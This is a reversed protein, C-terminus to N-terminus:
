RLELSSLYAALADTDLCELAAKQAGEAAEIGSLRFESADRGGYILEAGTGEGYALAIWGSSMCLAFFALAVLLAGSRKCTPQMVNRMRYRLAAATASLCTTFGHEDGATKLLLEAYRRRDGEGCGLLVTEDCSLELDDASRRMALWMLPNFWCMATCFVLFFKSWPDRRGIHILEHRFILSLDESSYARDPLVVRMGRRFLGVTLPTTVAPSGVLRLKVREMGARSIEGHWVGLVEPETVASAARLVRARFLAHSLFNGGFVLVFGAAWVAVAASVAAGPASLVLLPRQQEMVISDTIYLYNPIIWLMACARASFHRRLLPLVAILVADYVCIHVFTGFCLDLAAQAARPSVGAAACDVALVLTRSGEYLAVGRKKMRVRALALERKVADLLAAGREALLKVGYEVSAMIPYSPSTTRFIDLGEELDPILAEDSVNLLAGQTLAPLTKHAGDAWADAWAGAYESASDPDFRLYAGHAGDVLFLKGCRDCVKRIAAYDAINGYYDPSTVLVAAIKDDRRLATEIDAATPPLLVGSLENSQLVVPEVGLLTCANYVSKHSGRAILVKAGRKRVAYLMAHVACTSGDTLIYSRKAGLIDAIDAQAAAIVGDPSELCDSFSLETIDLAADRFLPFLRRNAKHGPMHMRLPRRKKYACLAGYIHLKM